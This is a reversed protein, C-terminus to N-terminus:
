RTLTPHDERVVDRANKDERLAIFRAHRLHNDGTWELFEFQGVLVPKVWRCEKMKEATLGQGWRGSKSEPLNAFPCKDIELPRLKRLLAARSAATFGNRTRAVYILKTGEYYGFVLADFTTGGVTYNVASATITVTSLPPGDTVYTFDVPGFTQGATGYSTWPTGGSGYNVAMKYVTSLDTAVSTTTLTTDYNHWYDGGATEQSAVYYTAGAALVVPSSLNAYKFQGPVGGSMSLSVSGGPVDTGNAASVLKVIHTGSNGAVFIRGLATVTIPSAGVGIRMGVFGSYDNRVTGLV